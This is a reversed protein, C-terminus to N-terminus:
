LKDMCVSLECAYNKVVCMNYTGDGPNIPCAWKPIPFPFGSASTCDVSADNPRTGNACCNYSAFVGATSPIGTYVRSGLSMKEKLKAVGRKINESPDLIAADCPATQNVQMLGCDYTNNPNKNTADARGSSERCMTVITMKKLMSDGSTEREIIPLYVTYRCGSLITCTVGGCLGGSSQLKSVIASSSECSRGTPAGAAGAPPTAVGASNSGVVDVGNVKLVALGVDGSVMDRNVTFFLLSLSLLGILGYVANKYM